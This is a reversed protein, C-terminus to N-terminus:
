GLRRVPEAGDWTQAAARMMAFLERSGPAPKLIEIMTGPGGGTDVYIVEGGGPVLGEQAIELGRSAARAAAFDDTLLCMHHMGELGADRWDKYISPADNHQKILEIQTDGWYAIAITFDIDSPRGRHKVQDLKIHELLFFPGVGMTKTWYALAADFDAPVYANQMIPGLRAIAPTM